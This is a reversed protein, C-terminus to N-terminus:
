LLTMTRPTRTSVKRQRDAKTPTAKPTVKAKKKPSEDEDDEDGDVEKKAKSGRKKAGKEKAGEDGNTEKKVKSGRKNPIAKAAPTPSSPITDESKGQSTPLEARPSSSTDNPSIDMSVNDTDSM